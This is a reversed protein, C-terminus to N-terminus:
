FDKQNGDADYLADYVAAMASKQGEGTAIYELFHVHHDAVLMGNEIVKVFLNKPMSWYDSGDDGHRAILSGGTTKSFAENECHYVDHGRYHGLFKCAECDHKYKPKM